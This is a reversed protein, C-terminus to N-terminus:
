ATAISGYRAVATNQSDSVFAGRRIGNRSLKLKATSYQVLAPIVAPNICSFELYLM